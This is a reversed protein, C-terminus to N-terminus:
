RQDEEPILAVVLKRAAPMAAHMVATAAHMRMAESKVGRLMYAEEIAECAGAIPLVNFLAALAQLDEQTLEPKSM